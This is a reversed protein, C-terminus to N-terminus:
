KKAHGYTLYFTYEEAAKSVVDYVEFTYALKLEDSTLSMIKCNEQKENFSDENDNYFFPLQCYLYTEDANFKWTSAKQSQLGFDTCVEKPNITQGGDETFAIVDDLECEQLYCEMLNTCNSGDSMKYAPSTTAATLVWGNKYCLLATNTEDTKKCSSFLMVFAVFALAIVQLKKM